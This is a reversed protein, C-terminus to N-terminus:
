PMPNGAPPSTGKQGAQANARRRAIAFLGVIGAVLLGALVAGPFTAPNLIRPWGDGVPPKYGRLVCYEEFTKGLTILLPHGREDVPVHVEDLFIGTEHDYVKIPGGTAWERPGNIVEGSPGSVTDWRGEQNSVRVVRNPGRQFCIQYHFGGEATSRPLAADAPRGDFMVPRVTNQNINVQENTLRAAHRVKGLAPLLIGILLAIIAIVVLLEILTFARRDVVKNM